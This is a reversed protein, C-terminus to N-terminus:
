LIKPPISVTDLASIGNSAAGSNPAFYRQIGSNRSRHSNRRREQAIRSTLAVETANSNNLSVLDTHLALHKTKYNVIVNSTSLSSNMAGEIGCTACTFKFKGNRGNVTAAITSWLSTKVSSGRGAGKTSRRKQRESQQEVLWRATIEVQSPEEDHATQSASPDPSVSPEAPLPAPPPMNDSKAYGRAAV